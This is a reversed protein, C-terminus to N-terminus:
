LALETSIYGSRGPLPFGITDFQQVGFLNEVRVQVEIRTKLGLRLALDVVFQGPIKILGAPDASRSSRYTGYGSVGLHSLTCSSCSHFVEAENTNTIPSLYPVTLQGVFSQIGGSTNRAELLTLSSRLRLHNWANIETAAELGWFRATGVNDPRVYGISSREYAILQQAYRAFLSTDFWFSLQDGSHEFRGGVDGAYAQEVELRPNGRTSASVGYKEGLTPFRVGRLWTARLGVGATPEFYTGIRGEPLCDQSESFQDDATSGQFSALGGQGSLCSARVEGRIMWANTLQVESSLVGSVYVEGARVSPRESGAVLSDSQIQSSEVAASLGATWGLLPRVELGLRQSVRESQQEVAAAGLNLESLPDTTELRTILLGSSATFIVPLTASGSPVRVSLGFLGHALASRAAEAPILSLGTVGQERRLGNAFFTLRADGRHTPLRVRSIVWLDDQLYDANQRIAKEDDQADFGTGRDDYYSFDNRAGDRRFSVSMAGSSSREASPHRLTLGTQLAGAGFSGAVAKLRFADDSPLTPEFVLAGSMSSRTAHLPAASRHVEARKLMWLPVRSLDTVGVVDDNIRVGALYVPVQAASSGRISVTSVDASSGTRNVQVGPSRALLRPADLGPQHLEDDRFVTTAVEPAGDVRPARVGGVIVTQEEEDALGGEQPTTQQAGVSTSLLLVVLSIRPVSRRPM